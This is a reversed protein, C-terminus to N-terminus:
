VFSPPSSPPSPGLAGTLLKKKENENKRDREERKKRRGSGELVHTAMTEQSGRM